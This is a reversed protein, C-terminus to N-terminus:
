TPIQLAVTRSDEKRTQGGADSLIIGSDTLTRTVKIGCKLIGPVSERDADIKKGSLRVLSKSLTRM